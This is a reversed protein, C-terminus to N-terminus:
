VYSVTPSALDLVGLTGVWLERDIALISNQIHFSPVIRTHILVQVCCCDVLGGVRGRASHFFSTEFGRVYHWQHACWYQM